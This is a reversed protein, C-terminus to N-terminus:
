SLLYTVIHSHGIGGKSFKMESETHRLFFNKCFHLKGGLDVILYQAGPSFTKLQSIEEGQSSGTLKEVPLFRCYLAAAEPELAISLRNNM